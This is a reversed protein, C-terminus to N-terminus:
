YAKVSGNRCLLIKVRSMIGLGGSSHGLLAGDDREIVFDIEKKLRGRYRLMSYLSELDARAVLEGFRGDIRRILWNVYDDL